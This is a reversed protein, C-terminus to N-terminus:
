PCIPSLLAISISLVWMMSISLKTGREAISWRKKSM